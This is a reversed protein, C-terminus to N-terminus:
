NEGGALEPPVSAERDPIGLTVVSGRPDNERFALEGGLRTVGWSVLWLGLGSGHRLPREEEDLLIAREREPIGPGDDRVHVEVGDATERVVAEVRPRDRDSHELANEVLEELVTELVDGNSVIEPTRGEEEAAVTVDAADAYRDAVRSAVAAVDVRELDLTEPALFEEARAVTAGLDALDTSADHIRRALTEPDVDGAGDGRLTEAFARVADLDNRLNHRLIRNLVDLRQEHTRRETVDRLLFSRGVPTGQQDRLVSQRGEFTRRGDATSLTVPGDGVTAPDVGLVEDVRTEPLAADDLDFTREAARNADLIRDDRDVVLVSASLEDLVTERALHGASPGRDFLGGRAQAGALSVSAVGVTGLTVDVITEFPLIASFGAPLIMAVVGLGGATLLAAQGAPIDDYTAASRFVTFAGFAGVGLTFLQLTVTTFVAIEGVLGVLIATSQVSLISVVAFVLLGAYRRPTMVPGRGTYEFAFATWTVSSLAWGFLMYRSSLILPILGARGLAIGGAVTALVGTTVALSLAGPRDRYPVVTVTVVAFLGAVCAGLLTALGSM